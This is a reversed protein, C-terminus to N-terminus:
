NNAYGDLSNCMVRVKQVVRCSYVQTSLEAVKGKMQGAIIKKQLQNGHEFFKQIVYNGFVDKMLQLANPEIERFVHEKEESNATM